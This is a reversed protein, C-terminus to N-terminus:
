EGREALNKKPPAHQQFSEQGCSKFMLSEVHKGFFCLQIGLFDVWPRMINHHRKICKATVLEPTKYQFMESDVLFVDSFFHPKQWFTEEHVLMFIMATDDIM